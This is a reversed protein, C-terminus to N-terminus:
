LKLIFKTVLFKQCLYVINLVKAIIKKLFETYVQEAERCQHM